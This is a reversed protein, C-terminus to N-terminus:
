SDSRTFSRRSVFQRSRTLCRWTWSGSSSRWSSRVPRAASASAGWSLGAWRKVRALAAFLAIEPAAKLIHSLAEM